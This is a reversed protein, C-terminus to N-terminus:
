GRAQEFRGRREIGDPGAAHGFLDVLARDDDSAICSARVLPLSARPSAAHLAQALLSKGTGSEGRVLVASGSRGLPAIRHLVRRLAPAEGVIAPGAGGSRAVGRVAAARASTVEADEGALLRARAASAVFRQRYAAPVQAALEELLARARVRHAAAAEREGLAARARALLDYLRWPAELDTEGGVGRPRELLIARVRELPAIAEAPRDTGLAVEAELLGMEVELDA